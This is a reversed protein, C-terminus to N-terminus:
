WGFEVRAAEIIVEAAARHELQTTDVTFQAAADYLPQRAAFMEHVTARPNATHLLPRKRNRSVREYITEESATLQVVFGLERLLARNKERLVVGGGTALVTRTLTRCSELANTELDRFHEEGHLAFLQAIPLGNREVILADTDVFQFRLMQAVHKGISSKGSGMFGVLIINTHPASMTTLCYATIKAARVGLSRIQGRNRM